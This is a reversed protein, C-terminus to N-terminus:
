QGTLEKTQQGSGTEEACEEVWSLIWDTAQLNNLDMM